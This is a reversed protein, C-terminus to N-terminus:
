QGKNPIGKHFGGNKEFIFGTEQFAGVM